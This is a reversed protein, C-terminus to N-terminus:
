SAADFATAAAVKGARMRDAIATLTARARVYRAHLQRCDAEIAHNLAGLDRWALLDPPSLTAQVERGWALLAELDHLRGLLDQVSKLAAVDAATRRRGVEISVEAAYRLKKLAIRADHLREPLYLAGAVDIAARLRSARRAVLSDLAWLWARKPIAGAPSRVAEDDSEITRATRELRSALRELKKARLKGALRRRADDRAHSVATGVYKLATSPYRSDKHLEAVLRMLVDLERVSGLQRTVRRLRRSLKRCTEADLTLLPLLERLRRSAVRVRHLAEVHGQELGTLDRSFADLRKRFPGHRSPENM